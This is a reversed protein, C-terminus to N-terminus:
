LACMCDWMFCCWGTLRNYTGEINDLTSICAIMGGGTTYYNNTLTRSTVPISLTNDSERDYAM